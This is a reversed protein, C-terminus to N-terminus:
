VLLEKPTLLLVNEERAETELRPTFGARSFLVYQIKRGKRVLESREQLLRLVSLDM